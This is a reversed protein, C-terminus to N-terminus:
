AIPPRLLPPVFLSTLTVRWGSFPETVPALPQAHSESGAILFASSLCGQACASGQCCDPTHPAGPDKPLHDSQHPRAGSEISDACHEHTGEIAAQATSPTSVVYEQMLHTVAQATMSHAGAPAIGYLAVAVILLIHQILRFVRM